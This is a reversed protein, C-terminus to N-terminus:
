ARTWVKSVFRRGQAAPTKWLDGVEKALEPDLKAKIDNIVDIDKEARMALQGNKKNIIGLVSEGIRKANKAAEALEM